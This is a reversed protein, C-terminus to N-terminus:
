RIEFERGGPKYCLARVEVSDRVGGGGGRTGIFDNIKKELKGFEKLRM